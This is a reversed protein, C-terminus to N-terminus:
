LRSELVLGLHSTGRWVALQVHLRRHLVSARVHSQQDYTTGTCSFLDDDDCDNPHHLKEAAAADAAHAHLRVFVANVKPLHEAMLVDIVYIVQNILPMDPLWLGGMNYDETLRMLFWFADDEPMYMLALATIFGM